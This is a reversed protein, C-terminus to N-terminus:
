RKVAPPGGLAGLHYYYKNIIAYKLNQSPLLVAKHSPIFDKITLMSVQREKQLSVTGFLYIM